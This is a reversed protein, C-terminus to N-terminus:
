GEWLPCCPSRGAHSNDAHFTPTGAYGAQIPPVVHEMDWLAGAALLGSDSKLSHGEPVNGLPYSPQFAHHHHHPSLPSYSAALAHRDQIGLPPLPSLSAAFGPSRSSLCEHTLTV